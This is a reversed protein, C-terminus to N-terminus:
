DCFFYHTDTQHSFKLGLRLILNKSPINEKNCRSKITKVGLGRLYSILGSASETAYGKGQFEKLFRFGIEVDSYYGFNHVVLEGIMKGDLRVALSYEEKNKKLSRMFEVFYEPTAQQGKLDDRYDYGWWKNLNDDIYLNYYELADNDTIDTISLRQTKILVPSAIKDFETYVKIINKEKIELPHYQLKSIRLGMDGCDEERNIYKIGDNVFLKAFEQAMTPYVGDYSKLGKEVHVILTNGIQEGVSFAVIKGDVELYAGIQGLAEFNEVYDYVKNQEERESWASFDTGREFENLFLKIKPFDSKSLTKVRYDPYAKKFKNVHNRQGSFRKGSYTCFDNANYIYDSWARDNYIETHAYRKSLEAATVNDICCFILPQNNKKCFEEIKELAGSVNKGMPYYFAGSYDACTERLILTDDFVAYSNVFDDRWMYKVGTSIDCFSIKSQELYKKVANVDSGLLEFKIM